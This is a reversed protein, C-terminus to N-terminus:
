SFIKEINVQLFPLITSFYFITVASDEIGVVRSRDAFAEGLGVISTESYLWPHPKPSLEGLTGVSGKRLPFGASIIAVYFNKPDRMGLTKFASLIEPWAKEYLGSTVLGIKVGM